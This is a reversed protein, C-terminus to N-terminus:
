FKKIVKVESTTFQLFTLKLVRDFHLKVFLQFTPRPPSGASLKSAKYSQAIHNMGIRCTQGHVHAYTNVVLSGLHSGAIEDFHLM